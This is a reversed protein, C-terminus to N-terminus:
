SAYNTYQVYKLIFCCVTGVSVDSSSVTTTDTMVYPWADINQFIVVGAADAALARRIQFLLFVWFSGLSIKIELLM